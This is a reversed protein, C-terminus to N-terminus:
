FLFDFSLQDEESSDSSEEPAVEPEAASKDQSTSQEDDASKVPVAQENLTDSASGGSLEPVDADAAEHSGLGEADRESVRQTEPIDATERAPLAESEHNDAAEQELNVTPESEQEAENASVDNLDQAPVYDDQSQTEDVPEQESIAENAHETEQQTQIDNEPVQESVLSFGEHTEIITESVIEEEITEETERTHASINVPEQEIQTGTAELATAGENSLDASEQEKAVESATQASEDEDWSTAVEGENLNTSTVREEIVPEPTTSDSELHTDESPALVGNVPANKAEALIEEVQEERVVFEEVTHEVVVREETMKTYLSQSWASQAPEEPDLDSRLMAITNTLLPSGEITAEFTDLDGPRGGALLATVGGFVFDISSHTESPLGDERLRFLALWENVVSRKADELLRQNGNESALVRLHDFGKQAQAAVNDADAAEDVVLGELLVRAVAAFDAHDVSAQALDWMSDYHYYYSNRNVKARSVIDRVTIESFPMEKMCDWFALEMRETASPGEANKPPRAM